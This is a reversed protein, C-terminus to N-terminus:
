SDRFVICIDVKNNLESLQSVVSRIVPMNVDCYRLYKACCATQVTIVDSGIVVGNTGMDRSQFTQESQSTGGRTDVQLKTIVTNITETYQGTCVGLLGLCQGCRFEDEVPTPLM